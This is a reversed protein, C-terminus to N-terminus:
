DFLKTSLYREGGDPLLVVIRKGQNEKKKALCTAVHLSAGSSIGLLLGLKSGANKACAFAEEESVTMITDILSTDLTKPIFGAGIGQIGHSSAEGGSLVPSRSPEVAVIQVKPNKEKLYKGVGSLTGGTGVACVFLDVDGETDEWIEPGTTTYHAEPNSANEFQGALFSSPTEEALEKAKAIAGQMGLNGPTLVLTAGYARMLMKREESMTEPMVIVAKYGRDVALASLGIGTNGSTPEIITSGHKLRGDKEADMIMQYAVRDKVSGTVNFCELKGFLEATFAHETDLKALDFLPTKGILEALTHYIKGM